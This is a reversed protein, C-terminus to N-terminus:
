DHFFSFFGSCMSFYKKLTFLVGGKQLQNLVKSSTEAHTKAGAEVAEPVEVDKKKFIL